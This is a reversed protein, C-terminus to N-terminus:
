FPIDETDMGMADFVPTPKSEKQEKPEANRNGGLLSLESVRVEPYSRKMGDKDTWENMSFEGSVCVLAGKELYPLVSEGRKGFMTCRIWATKKKAGYGSTAPVSFTVVSDGASTHRQEADKGLHGTFTFINM